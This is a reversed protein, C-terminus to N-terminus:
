KAHHLKGKPHTKQMSAFASGTSATAPFPNPACTGGRGSAMAQCQELSAFGCGRMQSAAETRCFDEASATPMTMAVLGLAFLAATSATTMKLLQKM